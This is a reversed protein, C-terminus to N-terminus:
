RRLYSPSSVVRMVLPPQRQERRARLCAHSNYVRYHDRARARGCGAGQSQTLSSPSDTLQRRIKQGGGGGDEAGPTTERELNSVHRSQRGGGRREMLRRGRRKERPAFSSLFFKSTRYSAPRRGPSRPIVNPPRPFVKLTPPSTQKGPIKVQAPDDVM